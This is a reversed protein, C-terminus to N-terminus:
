RAGAGCVARTATLEAQLWGIWADASAGDQVGEALSAARLEAHGDDGAATGALDAAADGGAASVAPCRWWDQLQVTGARLDAIVRDKKALADAKDKAHAADAAQTQDRYAAERKRVAKEAEASLTAARATAAQLDALVEAHHQKTEAHATREHALRLTQVTAFGGLALVAALLVYLIPLTLFRTM